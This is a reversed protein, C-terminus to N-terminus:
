WIALDKTSFLFVNKQRTTFLGIATAINNDIVQGPESYVGIYIDSVGSSCIANIIHMDNESFSFGYTFMSGQAMALKINCMLLYKDNQIKIQKEEDSGEFVILPYVSNNLDEYAKNLLKNDDYRNKYADGFIDKRIHLAGHLYFVNTPYYTSWYNRHPDGPKYQSFGDVVNSLTKNKMGELLSWYLLLDYNVTFINDEVSRLFFKLFKANNAFNVDNIAVCGSAEYLNTPHIQILTHIFRNIIQSKVLTLYDVLQQNYMSLAVRISINLYNIIREFDCTQFSQFLNQAVERYPFDEASFKSFLSNYQFTPSASISFGNGILLNRKQNQSGELAENFSVWQLM